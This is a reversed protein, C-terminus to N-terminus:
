RSGTVECATVRLAVVAARSTSRLQLAAVGAAGPQSRPPTPRRVLALVTPGAGSVTAPVGDARLAAGRAATGPM